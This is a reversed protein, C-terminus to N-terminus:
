EPAENYTNGGLLNGARKKGVRLVTMADANEDAPPAIYRGLSDIFKIEDLRGEVVGCAATAWEGWQKFWFPVGAERCQDLVSFAWDPHLPRANPGSEGGCIVWDVWDLTNINMNGAYTRVPNWPGIAPEYSVVRKAAPTDRLYVLREDATKQDDVSVGLWVNPLCCGHGDRLTLGDDEWHRLVRLMHWPQKTLVVFTHQPCVAMVSFVAAIYDISVDEHFLDGMPCVFIRRPKRWRLPESLKDAFCRVKGVWRGNDVLGAYQQGIKPHSALRHVVRAACCNDCGRSVPSCGVVPSWTADCWEIKTKNSM